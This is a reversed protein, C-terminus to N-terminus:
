MQETCQFINIKAPEAGSLACRKLRIDLDLLRICKFLLRDSAFLVNFLVHWINSICPQSPVRLFTIPTSIQPRMTAWIDTYKSNSPFRFPVFTFSLWEWKQQESARQGGIPVASEQMDKNQKSLRV